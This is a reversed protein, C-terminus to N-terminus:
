IFLKGNIAKPLPAKQTALPKSESHLAAHKFICGRAFIGIGSIKKPNAPNVAAGAADEPKVGANQLAASQGFLSSRVAAPMGLIAPKKM